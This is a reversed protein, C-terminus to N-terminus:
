ANDHPLLGLSVDVGENVYQVMNRPSMKGKWDLHIISLLSYIMCAMRIANQKCNSLVDVWANVIILLVNSILTHLQM